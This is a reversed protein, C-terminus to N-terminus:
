PVVELGDYGILVRLDQSKNRIDRELVSCFTDLDKHYKRSIHTLVLMKVLSKAACEVMEHAYSHGYRPGHYDSAWTAEGIVLDCCWMYNELQEHPETDGTYFMTKNSAYEYVKFGYCQDMSHQVRCANIMVTDDIYLVSSEVFYKVEIIFPIPIHYNKLFPTIFEQVTEPAFITLKKTRGRIALNHLILMPLGIFHDVHGHSICIMDIEDPHMRLCNKNTAEGCDLLITKDGAQVLTGASDRYETSCGSSTGFM